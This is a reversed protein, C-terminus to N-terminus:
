GQNRVAQVAEAKTPYLTPLQQGKGCVLDATWGHGNKAVTYQVMEGAKTYGTVTYGGSLDKTTKM